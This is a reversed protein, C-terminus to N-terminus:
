VGILQQKDKYYEIDAKKFKHSDTYYDKNIIGVSQSYLVSIKLLEYNAYTRVKEIREMKTHFYDIYEQKVADVWNISDNEHEHYKNRYEKATENVDRLTEGLIIVNVLEYVELIARLKNHRKDKSMIQSKFNTEVIEGAM